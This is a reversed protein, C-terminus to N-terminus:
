ETESNSFRLVANTFFINENDAVCKNGFKTIHMFTTDLTAKHIKIYHALQLGSIRLPQMILYKSEGIVMIRSKCASHFPFDDDVSLKKAIWVVRTARPSSMNEGGFMLILIDLCGLSSICVEGERTTEEGLFALEKWLREYFESFALCNQKSYADAFSAIELLSINLTQDIISWDTQRDSTSIFSQDWQHTATTMWKKLDEVASTDATLKFVSDGSYQKEKDKGYLDLYGIGTEEALLMKNEKTWFKKGFKIKRRGAVCIDNGILAEKKYADFAEYRAMKSPDVVSLKERLKKTMHDPCNPGFNFYEEEERTFPHKRILSMMRFIVSSDDEPFWGHKLIDLAAERPRASKTVAFFPFLVVKAFEPQSKFKVYEDSYKSKFSEVARLVSGQTVFSDQQSLESKVKDEIIACVDSFFGSEEELSHNQYSFLGNKSVFDDFDTESVFNHVWSEKEKARSFDAEKFSFPESTETIENMKNWIDDRDSRGNCLSRLQLYRSVGIALSNREFERATKFIDLLRDPDLPFVFARLEVTIGAEALRNWYSYKQLKESRIGAQSGETVACDGVLLTNNARDFAVIDPTKIEDSIQPFGFELCIKSITNESEDVLPIGYHM